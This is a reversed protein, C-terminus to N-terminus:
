REPKLLTVQHVDIGGGLFGGECYMLYYRWLAIFRADFGAPLRGQEVARDFRMRWDALTRAYDLGFRVEDRWELGRQEALARFASARILMGGPFIYAQIFDASRAYADFLEDRISIFQIAARGGPRLNHAICDLFAPWYERGLAEVMEVSVIADYRGDVDRYDQKRFLVDPATARALDLQEDSLSIAEVEFGRASLMAAMSGWGCGIELVEPGPASGIRAAIAEMKAQQAADLTMAGGWVGSSYAMTSGLWAAYFDNGLDYHAAINDRSGSRTNRRAWHYARAIMRWPGKARATDGLTAGNAMFLAFIQVPDPSSWEGKEWARYWGVSGGSALRMVARWDHITIQADFGPRRGGLRRTIGGPIRAELSGTALGRDIREIIRDRGGAFLRAFVGTADHAAGAAGVLHQGRGSEM